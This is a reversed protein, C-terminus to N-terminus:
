QCFIFDCCDIFVASYVDQKVRMGAAGVLEADVGGMESAEAARNETVEEVSAAAGYPGLCRFTGSVRCAGTEVEMGVADGEKM